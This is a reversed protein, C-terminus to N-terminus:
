DGSYRQERWPDGYNHYGFMEWFGPQDVSRLELGRALRERVREASGAVRRALEWIAGVAARENPNDLAPLDVANAVTEM